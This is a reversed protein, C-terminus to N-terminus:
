CHIPQRTTRRRHPHRRRRVAVAGVPRHSQQQTRTWRMKSLSRVFTYYFGQEEKSLFKAILFVTIIGGLVQIVRAFITYLIAGDIGLSNLIKTIFRM